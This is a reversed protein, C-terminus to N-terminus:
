SGGNFAEFLNIECPFSKHEGQYHEDKPQVFMHWGCMVCGSPHGTLHTTKLVKFNPLFIFPAQLALYSAHSILSTLRPPTTKPVVCLPYNVWQVQKLRFPLYSTGTTYDMLLSCSLALALTGTCM